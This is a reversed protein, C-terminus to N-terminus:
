IFNFFLKLFDPSTTNLDKLIYQKNGDKDVMILEKMKDKLHVTFIAQSMRAKVIVVNSSSDSEYIQFGQEKLEDLESDTVEANFHCIFYESNDSPGALAASLGIVIFGVLFAISSKM